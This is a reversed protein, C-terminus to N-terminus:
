CLKVAEHDTIGGNFRHTENRALKHGYAITKSGGEASEHPYWKNGVFGKRMDNEVFKIFDVFDPALSHNDAQQHIAAPAADVAEFLNHAAKEHNIGSYM